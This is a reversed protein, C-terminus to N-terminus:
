AYEVREGGGLLRFESRMLAFLVLCLSVTIAAAYGFELREWGARYAGYVLTDTAHLPGGATLVYVYTFVQFAGAIGTVLVFLTVPQLLPFTVRWFRQWPRAGEVRALDGYGSPIADLGAQFVIMQYGLQVAVSLLMLAALATRPSGLWARGGAGPDCVWEWVLAGAVVSVVYPLLLLGGVVRGGWSRRPLALAGALALGMTAPVYLAYLATNRLAVWVAPDRAVRVFNALGVFPGGPATLTWRHLSLYLVAALPALSFIALHCLAPAVFTWAVVTERVRQAHSATREGWAAVSAAAPGLLALGLIGFRWAWRPEATPVRLEAWREAGLRVAITAIAAGGIRRRRPVTVGSDSPVLEGAGIVNAARPFSWEPSRAVEELLARTNVLWRDTAQRAAVHANSYAVVGLLLAAATYQPGGRRRGPRAACVLALLLAALWAVRWAGRLGLGPTGVAVAGVVEWGDPALLPAVARGEWWQLIGERRLQELAAPPLPGATARVLPATGHYVELEPEGAGLTELARAHVLLPGLDYDSHDAVAATVLPLYHAVTWASREAFARASAHVAIRSAGLTLVASIVAGAGAVAPWWRPQSM